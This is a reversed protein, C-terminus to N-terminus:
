KECSLYWLNIQVSYSNDTTYFANYRDTYTGFVVPTNDNIIVRLHQRQDSHTYPGARFTPTQSYDGQMQNNDFLPLFHTYFTNTYGASRLQLRGAKLNFRVRYLDQLPPDSIFFQGVYDIGHVATQIGVIRKLDDPLKIQFYVVEGQKHVEFEHILVKEEM